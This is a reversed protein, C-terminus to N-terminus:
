SGRTECNDAGEQGGGSKVGIKFGGHSDNKHGKVTRGGKYEVIGAENCKKTPRVM